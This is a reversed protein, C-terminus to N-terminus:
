AAHSWTAAEDFLRVVAQDRRHELWISFSDTHLRAYRAAVDVAECLSPASRVAYDFPGGEGFRMTRGLKLGLRDDRLHEVGGDLMELVADLSIRGDANASWFERPVLEPDIHRAQVFRLFPQVLRASCSASM